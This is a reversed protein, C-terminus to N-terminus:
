NISSDKSQYFSDTTLIIFSHNFTVVIIIHSLTISPQFLSDTWSREDNHQYKMLDEERTKFKGLYIGMLDTEKENLMASQSMKSDSM